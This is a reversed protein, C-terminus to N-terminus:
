VVEKQIVFINAFRIFSMFSVEEIFEIVDGVALSLEDDNNQTYSYVAKCRRNATASKDRYM